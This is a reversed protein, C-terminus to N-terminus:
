AKAVQGINSHQPNAKALPSPRLTTLTNICGGADVRDGNMDAEHWKGQPLAVTGPIIRPTVRAKIRIEGRANFVRVEDGDSIGREEADVPNIWLM